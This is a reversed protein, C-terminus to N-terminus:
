KLGSGTAPTMVAHEVPAADLQKRREWVYVPIGLLLMVLGYLVAEPGCGYIVFISFIFAIIEVPSVHTSALRGERAAILTRALSCFAYPIAATLTALGVILAYIAAFGSKGAAQVLVLATALAASVVIGVAPVGAASRRGFLKPFLGDEAAAMPVQGMLLTWGNLSGFSSIVVAIAVLGAAWPGWMRLAADAFPAGSGVLEARPVVGLVVATGLVYLLCAIGVGLMTSRPITREPNIVDGAPVTASELGLYAFMTLPALAASAAFLSQGSPNFSSFHEPHIYFLGFIAIAGFPLLKSYTTLSAILGATKVGRLNVAVVIWISALTIAVAVPRNGQLAPALKIVSGAVAVAIAPLSAWISIWYGWAVLFGAFDGFGLRTYAYPGGTAPAISALRAFALGLCVAGGGMVIWALIALMGYPAVASPSLYFGSGVMNGVVIATCAIVGLSPRAVSTSAM